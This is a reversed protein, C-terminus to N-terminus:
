PVLGVRPGEAVDEAVGGGAVLKDADLRLLLRHHHHGGNALEEADGELPLSTGLLRGGEGNGLGDLLVVLLVVLRCFSSTRSSFIVDVMCHVASNTTTIYVALCSGAGRSSVATSGRRM